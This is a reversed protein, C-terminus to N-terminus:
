QFGEKFLVTDNLHLLPVSTSYCSIFKSITPEFSGTTVAIKLKICLEKEFNVKEVM